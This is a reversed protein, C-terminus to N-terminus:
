LLKLAALACISQIPTILRLNFFPGTRLVSISVTIMFPLVVLMAM